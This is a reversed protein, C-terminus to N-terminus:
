ASRVLAQSESEGAQSQLGAADHPLVLSATQSSPKSEPQAAEGGTARAGTAGSDETGALVPRSFEAASEQKTEGPTQELALVPAFGSVFEVSEWIAQKTEDPTQELVPVPAFRAAFGSQFRGAATAMAAMTSTMTHPTTCKREVFRSFSATSM